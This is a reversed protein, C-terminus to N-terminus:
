GKIPSSHTYLICNYLTACLIMGQLLTFLYHYMKVAPSSVNDTDYAIIHYYGPPINDTCNMLTTTSSSMITISKITQTMESYITVQCSSTNAWDALVCAICVQQTNVTVVLDQVEHTFLIFLANHMDNWPLYKYVLVISSKSIKYPGSISSGVSNQTVINLIYDSNPQLM